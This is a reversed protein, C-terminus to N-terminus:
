PEVRLCGRLDGHVSSFGYTGASCPGLVISCRTSAGLTTAWGLSPITVFEDADFGDLREFVLRIPRDAKVTVCGPAHGAGWRIHRTQHETDPRCHSSGSRKQKWWTVIRPAVHM